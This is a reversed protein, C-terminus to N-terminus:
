EDSSEADRRARALMQDLGAFPRNLEDAGQGEQPGTAAQLAQWRPCQDPCAESECPQMPWALALHELILNGFDLTEGAYRGLGIDEPDLEIGGQPISEPNQSPELLLEVREQIDVDVTEACWACALGLSANLDGRFLLRRGMRYAELELRARAHAPMEGGERGFLDRAQDWWNSDAELPFVRPTEEVASVQITLEGMSREAHSFRRVSLPNLAPM